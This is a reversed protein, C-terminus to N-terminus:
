LNNYKYEIYDGALKFVNTSDNFFQFCDTFAERLLVTNLEVTVNKRSTKLM